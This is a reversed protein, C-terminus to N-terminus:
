YFFPFFSFVFFSYPISFSPTFPFSSGDFASAEESGSATEESIVSVSDISNKIKNLSDVLNIEIDMIKSNVETLSNKTSDALQRINDAVVSFGRGYEGARAAEISANLALMNVQSTISEILKSTGKISTIKEKFLQEFMSVQGNTELVKSAQEQAGKSMQQSIASIEESSASIEESSAAIENTSNFLLESTKNLESIIERLFKLTQNYSSTLVGIEDNRSNLVIKERLDGKALLANSNSLKKIPNSISRSVIFSFIVIIAITMIVFATFITLENMVTTDIDQIYVGTGIIWKWEPFIKVYSLKPM